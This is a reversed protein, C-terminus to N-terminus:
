CLEASTALSCPHLKSNLLNVSIEGILFNKHILIVTALIQLNGTPHKYFTQSRILSLLSGGILLVFRFQRRNHLSSKLLGNTCATTMTMTFGRSIPYGTRCLFHRPLTQWNYRTTTQSHCGALFTRNLVVTRSIIYNCGSFKNDRDM